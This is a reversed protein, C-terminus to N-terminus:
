LPVGDTNVNENYNMWGFWGRCSKEGFTTLLVWKPLQQQSEANIQPLIKAEKVRRTEKRHSARAYPWSWISPQEWKCFSEGDNDDDFDSDDTPIYYMLCFVFIFGLGAQQRREEWLRQLHDPM